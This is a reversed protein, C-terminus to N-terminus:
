QAQAIVMALRNADYLISFLQHGNPSTSGSAAVRYLPFTASTLSLTRDLNRYYSNAVRVCRMLDELLLRPKRNLLARLRPTTTNFPTCSKTRRSGLKLPLVLITDM